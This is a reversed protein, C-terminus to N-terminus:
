QVCCKTINGIWLEIDAQLTPWISCVIVSTTDPIIHIPRKPFLPPCFFSKTENGSFLNEHFNAYRLGNGM